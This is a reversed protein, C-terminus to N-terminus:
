RLAVLRELGELRQLLFREAPGLATVKEHLLSLYARLSAADIASVRRVATGLEDIVPAPCPREQSRYLAIVYDVWTGNGTAAALKAALRAVSDVLSTSLKQGSRCAEVLEVLPGSLIREAEDARGLALAKESVESLLKFANMRRVTSADADTSVVPHGDNVIRPAAKVGAPVAVRSLTKRGVSEDLAKAVESPTAILTLEMSGILIRDGPRLATRAQIRRGNVLVGNRSKQDEVTVGRDAVLFV